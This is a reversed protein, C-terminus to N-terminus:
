AAAQANAKERTLLKGPFSRSGWLWLWSLLLLNSWFTVPDDFLKPQSPGNFSM